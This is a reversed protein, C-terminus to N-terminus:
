YQKALGRIDTRGMIILNRDDEKSIALLKDGSSADIDGVFSREAFFSKLSQQNINAKIGHATLYL